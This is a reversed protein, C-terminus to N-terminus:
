VERLLREIERLTANMRQVEDLLTKQAQVAEEALRKYEAGGSARVKERETRFHMVVFISAVIALFFAIPILIEWDAM